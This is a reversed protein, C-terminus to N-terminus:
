PGSAMSWNLTRGLIDIANEFADLWGIERNLTRDFEIKNDVELRRLRQSEVNWCRQEGAGVLHDILIGIAASRSDAQPVKRVHRLTWGQDATRALASM